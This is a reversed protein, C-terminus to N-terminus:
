PEMCCYSEKETNSDKKCWSSSWTWWIILLLFNQTERLKLTVLRFLDGGFSFGKNFRTQQTMVTTLRFSVCLFFCPETHPPTVVSIAVTTNPYKSPDNKTLLVVSTCSRKTCLIYLHICVYTYLVCFQLSTPTPHVDILASDSTHTPPRRSAPDSLSQPFMETRCPRSGV